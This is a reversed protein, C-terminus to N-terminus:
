TEEKKFRAVFRAKRLEFEWTSEDYSIRWYIEIPGIWVQIPIGEQDPDFAKVQVAQGTLSIVPENPFDHELAERLKPAFETAARDAVARFEEYTEFM